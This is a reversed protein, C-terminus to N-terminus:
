QTGLLRAREEVTFPTPDLEMARRLFYAAERFNGKEQLLRGAEEWGKPYNPALRTTAIFHVLAQDARGQQYLALGLSYHAPYYDPSLAVAHELLPIAAAPSLTDVYYKGLNTLVRPKDPSKAAVDTWLARRDRWVHNRQYTAYGSIALLLTVATIVTKKATARHHLEGALLALTIFFWVSPLYLRHEFITDLLPVLGSEIALTIFFWFIGFGAVRRLGPYRCDAKRSTALLYAGSGLLMMIFVLSAAVWPERLSTYVPYDYDLNQGVPLILLRLYTMIVRCETILYTQRPLPFSIEDGGGHAIVDVGKDIGVLYLAMFVPGVVFPLLRIIRQRAAGKLFCYDYLALTLPLTFSIEKASMALLSSIIALPYLLRHRLGRSPDTATEGSFARAYLLITVLYLLTALSTMRQVIYTVAQTEVPHLVFGLAAILPALPYRQRAKGDLATLTTATLLWIVIGNALHILLNVAHFGTVNLGGLSKNVALTALAFWRSKATFGTWAISHFFTALSDLSRNDVIAPYDDLVFPAHFTNSYAMGGLVMILLVQIIPRRM